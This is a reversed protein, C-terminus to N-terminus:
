RSLARRGYSASALERGLSNASASSLKAAPAAQSHLRQSSSILREQAAQRAKRYGAYGLGAFGLLMMAWTSPEPIAGEVLVLSFSSGVDHTMDDMTAVEFGEPTIEFSAGPSSIGFMPPALGDVRLTGGAGGGDASTIVFSRSSSMYDFSIFVDDTLMGNDDDYFDVLTLVATATGICGSDCVGSFDFVTHARAPAAEFSTAALFLAAVAVIARSIAM